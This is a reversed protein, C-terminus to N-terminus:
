QYKSQLRDGTFIFYGYQEKLLELKITLNQINNAQRIGWVNSTLRAQDHKKERRKVTNKM